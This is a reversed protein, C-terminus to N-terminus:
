GEAVRARERRRARAREQVEHEGFAGTYGSAAARRGLLIVYTWFAVFVSAGIGVRVGTPLRSPTV